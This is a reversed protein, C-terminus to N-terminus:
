HGGPHVLDTSELDPGLSSSTGSFPNTPLDNSGFASEPPPMEAAFELGPQHPASRSNGQSSNKTSSRGEGALRKKANTWWASMAPQYYVLCNLAGQFPALTAKAMWFGYNSEKFEMFNSMYFLSWPVYLALLYWFCRWFVQSTMSDGGAREVLRWKSSAKELKYVTLFVAFTAVTIGLLATGM